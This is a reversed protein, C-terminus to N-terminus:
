ISFITSNQPPIQSFFSLVGFIGQISFTFLNSPSFTVRMFSNSKSVSFSVFSILLLFLQVAGPISTTRFKQHFFSSTTWFTKSLVNLLIIKSLLMIGFYHGVSRITKNAFVLSRLSSFFWRGILYKFVEYLIHVPNITRSCVSTFFIRSWPFSQATSSINPVTSWSM